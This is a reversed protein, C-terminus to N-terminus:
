TLSYVREHRFVAVRKTVDSLPECKSNFGRKIFSECHKMRDTENSLGAVCSLQIAIVYIRYGVEKTNTAMIDVHPM